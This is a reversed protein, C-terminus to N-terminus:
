FWLRLRHTRLEGVADAADGVADVAVSGTDEIVVAIELLCNETIEMSVTM